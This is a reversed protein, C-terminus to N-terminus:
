KGSYSFHLSFGEDKPNDISFNRLGFRGVEMSIRNRTKMLDEVMDGIHFTIIEQFKESCGCKECPHESNKGHIGFRVFRTEWPFVSCQDHTLIPPMDGYVKRWYIIPPAGTLLSNFPHYGVQGREAVYLASTPKIHDPVPDDWTVDSEIEFLLGWKEGDASADVSISDIM